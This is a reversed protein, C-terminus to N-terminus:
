IRDTWMKEIFDTYWNGSVTIGQEENQYIVPDDSAKRTVADGQNDRDMIWVEEPQMIDAVVPSHTGIFIQPGGRRHYEKMCQLLYRLTETSLGSELDEICLLSPPEPDELLLILSLMQMISNSSLHAPITNKSDTETLELTYRGFRDKLFDIRDLGPVAAAARNLINRYNDKYEKEYAKFLQQLSERRPIHYRDSMTSTGSHKGFDNAINGLQAKAFFNNLNTPIPFSRMDAFQPLVLTRSDIQSLWPLTTKAQSSMDVYKVQKPGNDVYILPQRFPEDPPTRLALLETAIYPRTAKPAFNVVYAVPFAVGPVKFNFGFTIPEDNDGWSQLLEFGGRSYYAEDLGFRMVDILFDLADFITSIGTRNRGIFVNTPGLNYYDPSFDDMVIAANQIYASGFAVQRLMRFNRIWFGELQPM